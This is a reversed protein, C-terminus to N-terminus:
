LGNIKEIADNNSDRSSYKIYNLEENEKKNLDDTIYKSNLKTGSFKETIHNIINGSNLNDKNEEDEELLLNLYEEGEEAKSLNLELLRNNLESYMEKSLLLKKMFLIDLQSKIINKVELRSEMLEFAKDILRVHKKNNFCFCLLTSQLIHFNNINIHKVETCRAQSLESDKLTCTSNKHEKNYSINEKNSSKKEKINENLHKSKHKDTINNINGTKKRISAAFKESSNKKNSILYNNPQVLVKDSNNIDEEQKFFPNGSLKIQPEILNAKKLNNDSDINDDLQILSTNNKYRVNSNELNNINILSYTRHYKNNNMNGLVFNSTYNNRNYNNTYKNINNINNNNENINNNNGSTNSPNYIDKYTDGIKKPSFVSLKNPSINSNNNIDFKNYDDDKNFHNKSTINYMPNNVNEISKFSHKNEYKNDYLLNNKSIKESINNRTNYNDKYINNNIASNNMNRESIGKFGRNGDRKEEVFTFLTNLMNKKYFIDGYMEALITAFLSFVSWFSGFNSLVDDFTVYTVNIVETDSYVKFNFNVTTRDSTDLSDEEVYNVRLITKTEQIPIIFRTTDIVVTINQIFINYSKPIGSLQDYYDLLQMEHVVTLINSYQPTVQLNRTMMIIKPFSNKNDIMKLSDQLTSNSIYEIETSNASTNTESSQLNRSKNKTKTINYNINNHLISTPNLRNPTNTNTPTEINSDEALTPDTPTSDPTTTSDTPTTPETNSIVSDVASEVASAVSDIASQVASTTTDVTSQVTSEVASEVTSEIASTTSDVTSEIASAVSEIESEVASAASDVASQVTSTTSSIADDVSTNVDSTTTDSINNSNTSSTNSTNSSSSNSTSTSGDSTNQNSDSSSTYTGSNYLEDKQSSTLSIDDSVDAIASTDSTSSKIHNLAVVDKYKMNEFFSDSMDYVSTVPKGTSPDVAGNETFSSKLSDPISSVKNYKMEVSMSADYTDTDSGDTITAKFVPPLCYSFTKMIASIDYARKKALSKIRINNFKSTTCYMLSFNQATINNEKSYDPILESSLYALSKSWKSESSTSSMSTTNTSARSDSTTSDSTDELMRRTSTKNIISDYTDTYYSNNIPFNCSPCSININDIDLLATYNNTSNSIQRKYGNLQTFFGISFFFNENTANLSTTDYEYYTEVKPDTMYVFQKMSPITLYISLALCTMSVVVGIYSRSSDHGGIGIDVKTSFLDAKLIEFFM